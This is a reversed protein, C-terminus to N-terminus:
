IVAALSGTLDLSRTLFAVDVVQLSDAPLVSALAGRELSAEIRDDVLRVASNAEPRLYNGKTPIV